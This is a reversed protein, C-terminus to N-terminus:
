SLTDTFKLRTTGQIAMKQASTNGSPTLDGHMVLYLAGEQISGVGGEASGGSSKYETVLPTKFKIYKNKYTYPRAFGAPENHGAGGTDTINLTAKQPGLTSMYFQKLIRFRAFGSENRQAFIDSTEWIDSVQPLSGTPRKDYVVSVLCSRWSNSQNGTTGFESPAIAVLKLMVGNMWVKRGVREQSGTGAGINNIQTVHASTSHSDMFELIDTDKFGKGGTKNYMVDRYGGKTFYGPEVYHRSGKAGTRYGEARARKM